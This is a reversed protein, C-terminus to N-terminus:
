KCPTPRHLESCSFSGCPLHVKCKQGESQDLCHEASLYFSQLLKKGLHLQQSFLCQLVIKECHDEILPAEANALEQILMVLTAQLPASLLLTNGALIIISCSIIRSDQVKKLGPSLLFAKAAELTVVEEEADRFLLLIQHQGLRCLVAQPQHQSLDSKQSSQLM